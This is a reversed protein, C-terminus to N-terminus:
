LSPALLLRIPGQAPDGDPGPLGPHRPRRPRRRSSPAPPASTTWTGPRRRLRAGRAGAVELAPHGAGGGPPLRLRRVRGPAPHQRDAAPAPGPGRRQLHPPRGGPGAPRLPPDHAPGRPQGRHLHPRQPLDARLGDEGRRPRHHLGGYRDRQRQRGDGGDPGAGGAEDGAAEGAPSPSHSLARHHQPRGRGRQHEERDPRDGARGTARLPGRAHGGPGRGAPSARGGPHPLGPRRAGQLAPRPREGARGPRLPHPGPLAVMALAPVRRAMDGFGRTAPPAGAQKGLGIAVMKALGSEYAGRFATHPKVRAVFVIGDARLAEGPRPAGPHRGPHAGGGGHDHGLGGPRGVREETVGLHALVERQGEATAGGHSGMAPVVFPEAGRRACSRSWRAVMEALRAIGRSGRRRRDAGRACWGRCRRGACAAAVAAGADPLAAPTPIAYRVRVMEPLPVEALLGHLLADPIEFSLRMGLRKYGMGAPRPAPRRAPRSGYRREGHPGHPRSVPGPAM